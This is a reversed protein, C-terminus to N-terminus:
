LLIDPCFRCNCNKEDKHKNITIVYDMRDAQRYYDFVGNIKLM